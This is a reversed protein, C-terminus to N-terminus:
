IRRKYPVCKPDSLRLRFYTATNKQLNRLNLSFPNPGLLAYLFPYLISPSPYSFSLSFSSHKLEWIKLLYMYSLRTVFVM